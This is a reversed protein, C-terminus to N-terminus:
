LLQCSLLGRLGTDNKGSLRLLFGLLRFYDGMSMTVPWGECCPTRCAGAKCVFSPYYDPVLALIAEKM